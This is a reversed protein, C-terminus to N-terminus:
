QAPKSVNIIATGDVSDLRANVTSSGEAFATVLGTSSVQIAPSDHSWRATNTVDKTSGDSYTATATLQQTQGITLSTSPPQVTISQILPEVTIAASSRFDDLAATITASGPAIGQISGLSVSAVGEDSSTWTALDTVDRTTDDSWTGVATLRDSAHHRISLTGPLIALRVMIPTVTMFAVGSYTQLTGAITATGFRVGYVTGDMGVRAVQVDTSAWVAERTIDRVTGDSYQGTATLQQTTREPLSGTAPEISISKLFAPRAPPPPPPPPDEPQLASGPLPAASRAPMEEIMGTIFLRATARLGAVGAVITATAERNATAKGNADITAVVDGDDGGGDDRAEDGGQDGGKAISWSARDSLLAVTGDSYRGRVAFAYSQGPALTMAHPEVFLTMLRPRITLEARTEIQGIAANITVKGHRIGTVTGDDTITALKSNSSSWRAKNTVDRRLGNAYTGIAVFVAGAGEDINAVEPVITLSRLAPPASDAGQGTRGVVFSAVILIAVLLPSPRSSQVQLMMKKAIRVFSQDTAHGGSANGIRSLCAPEVPITPASARLDSSEPWAVPMSPHFSPWRTLVVYRILERLYSDSEVLASKFRGQFLYGVRQYKRNFWMVYSSELWHMGRTLNVTSAEIVLHFHNTMLVWSILNWGFRRVTEALLERFRIRDADSRFIDRKENGRNWAHWFDNDVEPRLPRAM